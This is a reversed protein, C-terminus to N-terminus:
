PFAWLTVSFTDKNRLVDGCVRMFGLNNYTVNKQCMSHPFFQYLSRRLLHLEYWLM